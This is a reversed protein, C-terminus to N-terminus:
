LIFLVIDIVPIWAIILSTMRFSVRDIVDRHCKRSSKWRWTQKNKDCLASSRHRWATRSNKCTTSSNTTKLPAPVASVPTWKRNWSTRRRTPGPFCRGTGRESCTRKSRAAGGTRTRAMGPMRLARPRTVGLPCTCPRTTGAATVGGTVRRPFKFCRTPAIRTRCCVRTRPTTTCRNAGATNRVPKRPYKRRTRPLYSSPYALSGPRCFIPATHQNPRHFMPQAPRRWPSAIAATLQPVTTVRSGKLEAFIMLYLWWSRRM